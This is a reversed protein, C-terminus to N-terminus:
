INFWEAKGVKENVVLVDAKLMNLRELKSCEEDVLEEKEREDVDRYRLAVM